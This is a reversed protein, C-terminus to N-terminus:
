LQPAAITTIPTNRKHPLLQVNFKYYVLPKPPSAAVLDSYVFTDCGNYALIGERSAWDCVCVWEKHQWGRQRLGSGGIIVLLNADRCCVNDSTVSRQCDRLVARCCFAGAPCPM